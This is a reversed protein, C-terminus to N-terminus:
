LVVLTMISVLEESVRYVTVFGASVLRGGCSRVSILSLNMKQLAKASSSDSCAMTDKDAQPATDILIHPPTDKISTPFRCACRERRHRASPSAGM